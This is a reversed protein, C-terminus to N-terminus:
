ELGSTLLVVALPGLWFMGYIAFPSDTTGGLEVGVAYGAVGLFAVVPAVYGYKVFLYSWNHRRDRTTPTM